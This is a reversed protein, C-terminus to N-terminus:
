ILPPPLEACTTLGSHRYKAKYEIVTKYAAMNYKIVNILHLLEYTKEKEEETPFTCMPSVHCLIDRGGRCLHYFM